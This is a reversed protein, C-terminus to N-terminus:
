AASRLAAKIRQKEALFTAGLEQAQERDLIAKAKTFMEGEEEEVHHEVLERLVTARAKWKENEPSLRELEGLLRSVVRHEEEAELILDHVREAPKIRQYLTIDEAESHATLGLRVGDLSARLQAVTATPDLLQTLEQYLDSHDRRLLATGNEIQDFAALLFRM